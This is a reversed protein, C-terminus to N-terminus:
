DWQGTRLMVLTCAELTEIGEAELATRLAANETGPNFVVRRPMVALISDKLVEVRSSGVYLTVTDVPDNCDALDRIVSVGLVAGGKPSVPAVRHGYEALMRQARNAYRDPKDSAGVVAVVSEMREVAQDRLDELASACRRGGIELGPALEVLPELAFAREMLRPHPIELDAEAISLQEYVLVDIDITRPGWREKRIRGLSREVELCAELFERPSLSTEVQAVANVFWDQDLKGVPATRYFSSLEVKQIGDIQSLAHAAKRITGVKCGVNSGFGLYARSM